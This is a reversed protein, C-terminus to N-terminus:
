RSAVAAQQFANWGASHVADEDANNVKPPASSVPQGAPGSTPLKARADARTQQAAAARRANPDVGNVTWGRFWGIFDSVLPAHDGSEYRAVRRPDAKVFDVFSQRLVNVRAPELKDLTAAPGVFAKAAADLMTSMATDAVSKWYNGESERQQPIENALATLVDMRELLPQLRQWAPSYPLLKDLQAVIAQQREDLSPMEPRVPAASPQTGPAFRGLIQMMQANQAMLAEVQSQLRQNASTVEDFRADPSPDGVPAQPEASGAALPTSESGSAPQETPTGPPSASSTDGM